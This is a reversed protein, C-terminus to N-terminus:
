GFVEEFKRIIEIDALPFEERLRNGQERNRFIFNSIGVSIGYPIIKDSDCYVWLIDADNYLSLFNKIQIIQLETIEQFKLDLIGKFIDPCFFLDSHSESNIKILIQFMGFKNLILEDIMNRDIIKIFL